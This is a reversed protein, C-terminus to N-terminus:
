VAPRGLRRRRLANIGMRWSSPLADWGFAALRWLPWFLVARQTWRRRIQDGGPVMSALGLVSRLVRVSRSGWAAALDCEYARACIAQYRDLAVVRGVRTAFESYRARAEWAGRYMREPHSTAQGPRSTWICTLAASAVFCRGHAMRLWLDYDEAYRMGDTYGGAALISSRRALVASQPIISYALLHEITEIPQGAPVPLTSGLMLPDTSRSRGFALDADPHQLLLALLSECHDETWRDDADLFAVFPEAIQAIAANRATAPGGNRELKLCRVPYGKAQYSEAIAVSQDTSADDVVLVTSVPHSQELASRIAGDLHAAGNYCPIVVAIDPMPM